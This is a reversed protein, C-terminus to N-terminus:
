PTRGIVTPTPTGGYDIPVATPPGEIVYTDGADVNVQLFDWAIPLPQGEVNSSGCFFLIKPQERSGCIIPRDLSDHVETRGDSRTVILRWNGKAQGTRQIEGNPTESQGADEQNVCAVMFATLLSAILFQIPFAFTM